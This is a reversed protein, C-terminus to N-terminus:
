IIVEEYLAKYIADLNKKAITIYDSDSFGEMPNLVDVLLNTQNAISRAIEDSVLEEYFITTPRPDLSNITDILNKIAGPTPEDETSLGSISLQTLGYANCLYGFAKHATILYKSKVDKLRSKYESDLSIFLEKNKLFNDEYYKENLPDLEIIKDKINSMMIIANNPDLWVHPDKKNNVEITKIDETCTYMHSTITKSLANTYHELGLGNVIFLKCDTLNKVDNTSPEYDHPEVGPKVLNRVTFKDGVIRSTFDYIPYCSTMIDYSENKSCSCITILMVLMMLSLLIKKM